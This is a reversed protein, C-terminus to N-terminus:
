KSTMLCTAGCTTHCVACSQGGGLTLDTLANGTNQLVLEPTVKFQAAEFKDANLSARLKAAQARIGAISKSKTSSRVDQSLTEKCIKM